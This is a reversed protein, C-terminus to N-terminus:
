QNSNSRRIRCERYVAYTAVVHRQVEIALEALADASLPSADPRWVHQVPVDFSAPAIPSAPTFAPAPQVPQVRHVPDIM